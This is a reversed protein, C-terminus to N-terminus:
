LGGWGCVRTLVKLLLHASRCLLSSFFFFFFGSQKSLSSSRALFHNREKSGCLQPSSTPTNQSQLTKVDPKSHTTHTHAFTTPQNWARSLLVLGCLEIGCTHQTPGTATVDRFLFFLLFFYRIKNTLKFSWIHQLYVGAPQTIRGAEQQVSETGFKGEAILLLYSVTVPDRGAMECSASTAKKDHVVSQTERFTELLIQM